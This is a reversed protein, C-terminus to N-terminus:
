LNEEQYYKIAKRIFSSVTLGHKILKIRLQRYDEQDVEVVLKHTAGKASLKKIGKPSSNM